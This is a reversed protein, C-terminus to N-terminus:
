TPQVAQWGSGSANSKMAYLPQNRLKDHREWLERSSETGPIQKLDYFAEPNACDDSPSRLHEHGLAMLVPPLLLLSLAMAYRTSVAIM